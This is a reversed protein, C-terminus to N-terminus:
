ESDLQTGGDNKILINPNESESIDLSSLFDNKSLDPDQVLSVDNIPPGSGKASDMGVENPKKMAKMFRNSPDIQRALWSRKKGLFKAQFRDIKSIGKV